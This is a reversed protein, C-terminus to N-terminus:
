SAGQQAWLRGEERVALMLPILREVEKWRAHLAIQAAEPDEELAQHPNDERATKISRLNPFIGSLFRAVDFPSTIPSYDVEFSSLSTQFIHQHPEATAPPVSSADFTMYLEVLSPCYQALYRLGQLTAPPTVVRGYGIFSLIQIRPWSRAMDAIGADDLSLGLLTTIHVEKVNGFCFLPRLTQIDVLYEDGQVAPEAVLTDINLRIQTLSQHWPRCAALARFLPRMLSRPAYSDFQISLIILTSHTCMDLFAIVAPHDVHTLSIEQTNAFFPGDPITSTSLELPLEHLFAKRLTRMRGIAQLTGVDPISIKINELHLLRDILMCLSASVGPEMIEADLTTTHLILEKLAPCKQPLISLISIQRVSTKCTLNVSILRPGLFFRLHHFDKEFQHNWVLSELNPFYYDSPLSMSLASFLGSSCSVGTSSSVCSMFRVRRAYVLARDWDTAVISRRLRLTRPPREDNVEAVYVLDEPMCGIINQLSKQERWLVDLAPDHFATCSRALVALAQSEGSLEECVIGVIEPVWLCHHM